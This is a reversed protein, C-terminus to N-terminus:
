KDEDYTVIGGRSNWYMDPVDHSFYTNILPLSRTVIIGRGKQLPAVIRAECKVDLWVMINVQNIGVAERKSRPDVTASGAPQIQIHYSPGTGAFVQYGTLSGLPVSITRKSLMNMETSVRVALKNCIENVLLTDVYMSSVRGNDEDTRIKFLDETEIHHGNIISSYAGDIIKAMDSVIKKEAIDLAMPALVSDLRSLIFFLGVSLLIVAVFFGLRKRKRKGLPKKM